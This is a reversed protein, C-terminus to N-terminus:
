LSKEPSCARLAIIFFFFSIYLFIVGLIPRSPAAGDQKLQQPAGRVNRLATSACAERYDACSELSRAVQLETPLPKKKRRLDNM